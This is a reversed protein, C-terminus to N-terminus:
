FLDALTDIRSIKRNKMVKRILRQREEAERVYSKEDSIKKAKVRDAPTGSIRRGEDVLRQFQDEAGVVNLAAKIQEWDADDSIVLDEDRYPWLEQREQETLRRFKGIRMKKMESIFRRAEKRIYANVEEAIKRM